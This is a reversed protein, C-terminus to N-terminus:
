DPLEEMNVYQGAKIKERAKAIQPCM